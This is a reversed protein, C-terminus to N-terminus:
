IHKRITNSETEDKKDIVKACRRTERSKSKKYISKSKQGM